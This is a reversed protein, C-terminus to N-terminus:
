EYEYESLDDDHMMFYADCASFWQVSWKALRSQLECATWPIKKDFFACDRNRTNTKCVMM